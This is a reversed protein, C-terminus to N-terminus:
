AAVLSEFDHIPIFGEALPDSGVEETVPNYHTVPAAWMTNLPQERGEYDDSECYDEDDDYARDDHVADYHSDIDVVYEECAGCWEHGM